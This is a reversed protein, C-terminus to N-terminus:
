RIDVRKNNGNSSIYQVSVNPRWFQIKGQEVQDNKRAEVLPDFKVYLSQRALDSQFIVDSWTLAHGICKLSINEWKLTTGSQYIKRRISCIPFNVTYDHCWNREPSTFRNSSVKWGTRMRLFIIKLPFQGKPKRQMYFFIIPIEILTCILTCIM